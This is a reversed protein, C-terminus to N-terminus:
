WDPNIVVDGARLNAALLATDIADQVDEALAGAKEQADLQGDGNQDHQGVDLNDATDAAPVIVDLLTIAGNPAQLALLFHADGPLVYATILGSFIENITTASAQNDGFVSKLMGLLDNRMDTLFDLASGISDGLLPINILNLISQAIEEITSLTQDIQAILIDPNALMNVASFRVADMLGQIDPSNLVEVSAATGSGDAAIQVLEDLLDAMSAVQLVLFHDNYGNNDQDLGALALSAYAFMGNADAQVQSSTDVPEGLGGSHDAKLPHEDDPYFMPLVAWASGSVETYTGGDLLFEDEFYYRGSVAYADEFYMWYTLTKDTGTLQFTGDDNIAFKKGDKVPALDGSIVVMGSSVVIPLYDVAGSFGMLDARGAVDVTLTTAQDDNYFFGKSMGGALDLLDLGMFLDFVASMKMNIEADTGSGFLLQGGLRDDDASLTGTDYVLSYGKSREATHRLGIDMSFEDPNYAVKVPVDDSVPLYLSTVASNGSAAAFKWKEIGVSDSITLSIVGGDASATVISPGFIGDLAAQLDAVLHALTTNDATSATTLTVPVNLYEFTLPNQLSITFQADSPLVYGTVPDTGLITNCSGLADCLSGALEQVTNVEFEGLAFVFDFFRSHYDFLKNLAVNIFPINVSFLDNEKYVDRLLAEMDEFLAVVTSFDFTTFIDFADAFDPNTSPTVVFATGDIHWDAKSVAVSPLNTLTYGDLAPFLNANLLNAQAAVGVVNLTSFPEIDSSSELLDDISLSTNFTYTFEGGITVNGGTTLISAFGYLAWADVNTAAGVVDINLVLNEVTFETARALSFASAEFGMVTVAPDSEDATFSLMSVGNGPQVAISLHDGKASAAFLNPAAADLAAQVDEVLSNNWNGLLTVGAPFKLQTVATNAPDAAISVHDIAGGAALALQLRTETGVQGVILSGAPYGLATLAADVKEELQRRLDGIYTNNKTEDVTLTIAVPANDDLTLTLVADSTMAVADYIVHLVADPDYVLATAQVNTQPAINLNTSTDAALVTIDYDTGDVTLTFHVDTALQGNAALGTPITQNNADLEIPVAIKPPDNPTMDIVFAMSLLTAVAQMEIFDEKDPTVNSLNGFDADGFSIGATVPDYVRELPHTGDAITFTINNEVPDYIGGVHFGLLATLRSTLEQFHAAVPEGNNKESKDEPLHWKTVALSEDDAKIRLEGIGSDQGSAFVLVGGSHSVAIKGAGIVADLAAQLDAAVDDANANGASAAGNVTVTYEVGDLLLTFSVDGGPAYEGAALATDIKLETPALYNTINEEFLAALRSYDSFLDRLITEAAFPINTAFAESMGVQMLWDSFTRFMSVVDTAQLVSFPKFTDEFDSNPTFTGPDSAFIDDSAIAFEPTGVIPIGTSTATFDGAATGSGTFTNTADTLEAGLLKGDADADTIEFDVQANLNFWGDVVSGGTFGVLFAPTLGTVAFEATAQMMQQTAFYTPIAGVEVGVGFGLDLVSTVPVPPTNMRMSLEGMGDANESNIDLNANQTKTNTLQFLLQQEILQGGSVVIQGYLQSAAFDAGNASATWGELAAALDFSNAIDYDPPTSAAALQTEVEANFATIAASFDLLDAFSAQLYPINNTLLTDAAAALDAAWDAFDALGQIIEDREEASLEAVTTVSSYDEVSNLTLSYADSSGNLTVTDADAGGDLLLGMNEWLTVGFTDDGAGSSIEISEINAHGATWTGGQVSVSNANINITDGAANEIPLVLRDTGDAGDVTLNMNVWTTVSFADDGTGGSLELTEVNTHTATWAAGTLFTSNASFQVAGSTDSITFSDDGGAGDIVITNVGTAASVNIVVADVNATGTFNLTATQLDVQDFVISLGAATCSACGAALVNSLAVNRLTITRTTATGNDSIVIAGSLTTLGGGAGGELTLDFDLGNLLINEAYDGSEIYITDDDPAGNAAVDDIAAQIPTACPQDGNTNPDCDTTTFAHLVSGRTFYPDKENGAELSILGSAQVPAAIEFEGSTSIFIEGDVALGAGGLTLDGENMIYLGAGQPPDSHNIDSVFAGGVINVQASLMDVATEIPDDAAGVQTHAAQMFLTGGPITINRGKGNLDFIGGLAVLQLVMGFALAIEGLGIEGGVIKLDFGATLIELQDIQILGSHTTDGLMIRGQSDVYGLEVSSLNFDYGPQWDGLLIEADVTSPKFAVDGLAASVVADEELRVDAAVIIIGGLGAAIKAGPLLEFVGVGDGDSDAIVLLNGNAVVSAGAELTIGDAASLEIDGDSHVDGAIRITEAAYAINQTASVQTAAAQKIEATATLQISEAGVDSSIQIEEAAVKLEGIILVDEIIELDATPAEVSLSEISEDFQVVSTGATVKQDSLSSQSATLKVKLTDQGGGGSIALTSADDELEAEVQDDEETGVVSVDSAVVVLAANVQTNTLSVDQSGSVIVGANYTSDQVAVQSSGSIVVGANHECDQLTVDQSGLVVLGANFTSGAITVDSAMIVSVGADFNFDRLQVDGSVRSLSVGGALHTAAGNAAGQLTLRGAFNNLNVFENFDGGEIYITDNDPIVGGTVANLADQIPTNSVACNAAGQCDGGSPLYSHKVGEVYFYPDPIVVDLVADDETSALTEEVTAAAEANVETETDALAETDDEAVADAAANEETEEERVNASDVDAESDFGETNADANAQTDTHTGEAATGEEYIDATDADAVETQAETVDADTVVETDAQVDGMTEVQVAESSDSNEPSQEGARVMSTWSLAFVIVLVVVLCLRAALDKQKKREHKSTPKANTILM